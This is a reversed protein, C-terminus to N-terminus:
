ANEQYLQLEMAKDIALHLIELSIIGQQIEFAFAEEIEKYALSKQTIAQKHPRPSVMADAHDSVALILQMLEIDNAPKCRVERKHYIRGNMGWDHHGCIIREVDPYHQGVDKVENNEVHKQMRQYEESSLSGNTDILDPYELKGSDHLIASRVMTIDREYNIEPFISNKISFAVQATRWCHFFTWPSCEYIRTMKSQIWLSQTYAEDFITSWRKIECM